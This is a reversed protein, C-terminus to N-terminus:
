PRDNSGFIEDISRQVEQTEVESIPGPFHVAEWQFPVVTKGALLNAIAQLTAPDDLLLIQQILSLKFESTNMAYRQNTANKCIFYSESRKGPTYECELNEWFAFGVTGKEFVVTGRFNDWFSIKRKSFILWPIAFSTVSTIKGVNQCIDRKSMQSRGGGKIWFKNRENPV